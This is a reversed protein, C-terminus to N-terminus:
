AAKKKTINRAIAQRLASLTVPKSIYDNMGAALYKERSGSVADASVGVIPLSSFSGGKSERIKKALEIGDMEPMHGDTLILDFEEGALLIEMAVKGNPAERSSHGLHDLMRRVVLLNTENDEVVLVRLSEGHVPVKRAYTALKPLPKAPSQLPLTFWFKSGKGELPTFGIQGGMLEVLRKSISLGLGTGGYQRTTSSDAQQFAQFIKERVAQPVGIGTDRVEFRLGREDELVGVSIGGEGTFKIANGILNTLVQRIRGADGLYEKPLNEPISISLKLGRKQASFDLVSVSSKICEELSFASIEVELKGAEVKSFDLIDNLIRLLSDASNKIRLASDRQEEDLNTELLMWSMGMIGNIPTRIEHSMNALFMSKAKTTAEAEEKARTLELQKAQEKIAMKHATVDLTMGVLEIVKGSESKVPTLVTELHRGSFYSAYGCDNGNQATRFSELTTPDDKMLDFISKGVFQGPKLGVAALGNGEQLTFIGKEDTCWLIMPAFNVLRQVRDQLHRTQQDLACQETEFNHLRRSVKIVTIALIIAGGTIRILTGSDADFWGQKEGSIVIWNLVPPTVIVIALLRRATMGSPRDSWLVKAIGESANRSFHALSLLGFSITTHLAMQTYIALGFTTNIGCIYSIFAQFSIIFVISDIAQAFTFYKKGPKEALFIATALLVFNIATIPALRGPPFRGSIGAPDLFLLEDIGLKWHAYYECLTIVGIAAGLFSFACATYYSKPGPNRSFLFIASAFLLFGLATNAKMTIYGPLMTKLIEIELAWGALVAVAVAAVISCFLFQLPRRSNEM